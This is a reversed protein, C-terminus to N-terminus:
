IGIYATKVRDDQALDEAAGELVIRGVELVYGRHALDLALVANQEVLIISVGGKNIDRIITAIEQVVIPSLGISPEDMFLLTPKTMLARGIALMQQMGGSLTEAKKDQFQKLIPFHEFVDDLDKTIATQDKRLYAGVQLNEMVTMFPFLRRGELVHGIGRKVLEQPSCGDVRKDQFWIEGSTAAKLGSLVRLTTTKGAGNAGILTAIEGKEVGLSIEKIAEASGYHAWINQANFWM